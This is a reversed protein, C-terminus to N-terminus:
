FVSFRYTIQVESNFPTVMQQEESSLKIVGEAPLLQQDQNLNTSLHQGSIDTRRQEDKTSITEPTKLSESPTLPGEDPSSVAQRQFTVNKTLKRHRAAFGELTPAKMLEIEDQESALLQQQQEESLGSKKIERKLKEIEVSSTASEAESQLRKLISKLRRREPTENSEPSYPPSEDDKPVEIVTATSDGSSLSLPQSTSPESLIRSGMLTKKASESESSPSSSSSSSLLPLFQTIESKVQTQLSQRGDSTSRTRRGQLISHMMESGQSSPSLASSGESTSRTLVATSSQTTLLEAIKQRENLIKLKKIFPLRSFEPSLDDISGYTKTNKQLGLALPRPKVITGSEPQKDSETATSTSPASESSHESAFSLSRKNSSSGLLLAPSPPTIPVPSTYTAVRSSGPFLPESFTSTTASSVSDRHQLAGMTAKTFLQQKGEEEKTKAKAEREEKQRLLRLRQILPLGAGIVERDELIKLSTPPPPPSSISGRGRKQAITSSQYIIEPPATQVQVRKKIPSLAIAGSPPPSIGGSAIAKEREDSLVVHHMRKLVGRSVGSVSRMPLVGGAISAARGELGVSSYYPHTSVSVSSQKRLSASSSSGDHRGEKTSSEQESSDEKSFM